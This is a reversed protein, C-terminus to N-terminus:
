NSSKEKMLDWFGLDDFPKGVLRTLERALEEACEECYMHNTRIQRILCAICV